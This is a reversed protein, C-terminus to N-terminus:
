SSWTDNVGKSEHLWSTYSSRFVSGNARVEKSELPPKYQLEDTSLTGSSVAVALRAHREDLRPFKNLLRQYDSAQLVALETDAAAIATFTRVIESHFLCQEGFWAGPGVECDEKLGGEESASHTIMVVRGQVVFVMEQVLQGVEVVVDGPNAQVWSHAQALEAVFARPAGCFLPFSLVVGRLLELSLDRQVAHSLRQLLAPALTLMNEQRLNQRLNMEVRRRLDANVARREMFGVARRVQAETEDDIILRLAHTVTSIIFTFIVAGLLMVVTAYLRGLTGHPHIDGYGVGTMTAAVWYSDAIYRHWWPAWETTGFSTAPVPEYRQLFRWLCSCVHPVLALILGIKVQMLRLHKFRRQFKSLLPWLKLVHLFKLAFVTRAAPGVRASLAMPCAVVIDLLLWSRVYIAAINWPKLTMSRGEDTIVGTRFNLVISSLLFVDVAGFLSLFEQSEFMDDRLYVLGIPVVLVLLAIILLMVGDWLLRFTGEPLLIFGYPHVSVLDEVSTITNHSSRRNLFSASMRFVSDEEQGRQADDGLTWEIDIKREHTAEAKPSKSGCVEISEPPLDNDHTGESGNEGTAAEVLHPLVCGLADSYVSQNSPRRAIVLSQPLGVVVHGKTDLSTDGSSQRSLKRDEDRGCLLRALDVRGVASSADSPTRALAASTCSEPTKVGDAVGGAGNSGDIAEFVGLSSTSLCAWGTETPRRIASSLRRSGRGILPMQPVILAEPTAARSNLRCPARDQPVKTVHVQLQLVSDQLLSLQHSIGQLATLLTPEVPGRLVAPRPSVDRKPSGQLAASVTPEVLGRSVPARPSIDRTASAETDVM